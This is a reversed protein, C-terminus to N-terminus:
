EDNKKNKAKDLFDSFNQSTPIQQYLTENESNSLQYLNTITQDTAGILIKQNDISVLYLTRHPTLHVTEIIGVLKTSTAQGKVQMQRIVIAIGAIILVVVGLKLFVSFAFGTSNVYSVDGPSPSTQPLLLFMAGGLLVIAGVTIGILAWRPLKRLYVIIAMLRENGKNM